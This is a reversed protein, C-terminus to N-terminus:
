LTREGAINAHSEGSDFFFNQRTNEPPVAVIGSGSGTPPCAARMHLAGGPPRRALAAVFGVDNRAKPARSAATSCNYSRDMPRRHGRHRPAALLQFLFCCCAHLRADMTPAGIRTQSSRGCTRRSSIPASREPGRSPSPSCGRYQLRLAPWTMPLCPSAQRFAASLLWGPSLAPPPRTRPNVRIISPFSPLGRAAHGPERAGLAFIEVIRQSTFSLCSAKAFRPLGSGDAPARGLQSTASIRSSPNASRLSSRRHLRSMPPRAHM